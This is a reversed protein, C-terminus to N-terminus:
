GRFRGLWETIDQSIRILVDPRAYKDVSFYDEILVKTVVEETHQTGDESTKLVKEKTLQYVKTGEDAENLLFLTEYIARIVNNQETNMFLDSTRAQIRASERLTPFHVKVNVELELDDYTYTKEFITRGVIVNQIQEIKNTEAM